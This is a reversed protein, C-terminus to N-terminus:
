FSSCRVTSLVGLVFFPDLISVLDALESSFEIENFLKCMRLGLSSSGMGLRQALNILCRALRDEKYYIDRDFHDLPFYVIVVHVCMLYDQQVLFCVEPMRARPTEINNRLQDGM